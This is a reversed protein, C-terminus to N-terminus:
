RSASKKTRKKEFAFIASELCNRYSMLAFYAASRNSYAIGMMEVSNTLVLVRNYHLIAREFEHLNYFDNGINRQEQAIFEKNYAIKPWVKRHFLAIKDAIGGSNNKLIKM